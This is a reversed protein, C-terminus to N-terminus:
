QIKDFKQSFAAHINPSLTAACAERFADSSVTAFQSARSLHSMRKPNFTICKPDFSEIGAYGSSEFFVRL